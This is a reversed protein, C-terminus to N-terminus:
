VQLAPLQGPGSALCAPGQPPPHVPFGSGMLIFPVVCLPVPLIPVDRVPEGKSGRAGTPGEVVVTDGQVGLSSSPTLPPALM